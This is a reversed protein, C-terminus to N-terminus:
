DCNWETVPLLRWFMNATLLKVKSDVSPKGFLLASPHPWTGFRAILSIYMNELKRWFKVLRSQGTAKSTYCRFRVSFRSVIDFKSCAYWLLTLSACVSEQQRLILCAVLLNRLSVVRNSSARWFLADGVASRVFNALYLIHMCSNPEVWLRAFVECFTLTGVFVIPSPQM